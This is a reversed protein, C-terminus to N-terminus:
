AVSGKKDEDDGCSALLESIERLRRTLMEITRKIQREERILAEADDKQEIPKPQVTSEKAQAVSKGEKGAAIIAARKEGDRQRAAEAQIDAGVDLDGMRHSTVAAEASRRDVQAEREVMDEYRLGNKKCSEEIALLVRGLERQLKAIQRSIDRAEEILKETAPDIRARYIGKKKAIDLLDHFTAWFEQTHARSSKNGREAILVHHALEHIATYMLLTENQSGDSGQFNKDNIVIEGGPHKYLGNVSSSKRGSFVVTFDKKLAYLELLKEKVQDQNM